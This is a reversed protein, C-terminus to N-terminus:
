FPSNLDLYPKSRRLKQDQSRRRGNYGVVGSGRGSTAMSRTPDTRFTRDRIREDWQALWGVVPKMSPIVAERETGYPKGFLLREVTRRNKRRELLRNLGRAALDERATRHHFRVAGYLSEDFLASGLLAQVEV